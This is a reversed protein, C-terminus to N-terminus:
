DADYAGRLRIPCTPPTYVFMIERRLHMDVIGVVKGYILLYVRQRDWDWDEVDQRLRAMQTLGTPALRDGTEPMIEIFRYLSGRLHPELRQGLRAPKVHVWGFTIEYRRGAPLRFALMIYPIPHDRIYVLVRRRRGICGRAATNTPAILGNTV